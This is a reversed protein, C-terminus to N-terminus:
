PLRAFRSPLLAGIPIAVEHTAVLNAHRVIRAAEDYDFHGAETLVPTYGREGPRWWAQHEMSWILFPGPVPPVTQVNQTPRSNLVRDLLDGPRTDVGRLVDVFVDLRVPPIMVAVIVDCLAMRESPTLRLDFIADGPMPSAPRTTLPRDEIHARWLHDLLAERQFEALRIGEGEEAQQRTSWECLPCTLTLIVAEPM